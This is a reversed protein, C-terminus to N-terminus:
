TQNNILLILYLNIVFDIACISTIELSLDILDLQDHNSLTIRRYVHTLSANTINLLDM